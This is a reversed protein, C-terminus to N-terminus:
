WSGGADLKASRERFEPDALVAYDDDPECEIWGAPVDGDTLCYVHGRITAGAYAQSISRHVVECGDPVHLLVHTPDHEWYRKILKQAM